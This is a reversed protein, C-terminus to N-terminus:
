AAASRLSTSAAARSRLLTVPTFAEDTRRRVRKLTDSAAKTAIAAIAVVIIAGTENAPEGGSEECPPGWDGDEAAAAVSAPANGAVSLLIAVTSSILPAM